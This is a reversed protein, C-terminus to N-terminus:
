REQAHREAGEPYSDFAPYENSLELGEERYYRLEERLQQAKLTFQKRRARLENLTQNRTQEFAEKALAKMLITETIPDVDPNHDRIRPVPELVHKMLQQTSTEGEYPVNGSLAEYLVVALSYQDSRGDVTQGM